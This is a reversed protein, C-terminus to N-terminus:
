AISLYSLGQQWSQRERLYAHLLAGSQYELELLSKFIGTTRAAKERVILRLKKEGDCSPKSDNM